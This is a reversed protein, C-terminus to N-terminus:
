NIVNKKIGKAIKKEKKDNYIKLSYMKSRLGVFEKIIKNNTESKFKGVVKKNKDSFLFHDKTFDSTDFYDINNYMDM